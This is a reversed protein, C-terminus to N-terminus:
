SWGQRRMVATPQWQSADYTAAACHQQNGDVLTTVVAVWGLLLLLPLNLNSSFHWLLLKPCPNMVPQSSARCCQRCRRSVGAGTCACFIRYVLM